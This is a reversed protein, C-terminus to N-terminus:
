NFDPISWFSSNEYNVYAAEHAREKIQKMFPILELEQSNSNICLDSTDRAMKVGVPLIVLENDVEIESFIASGILINQKASKAESREAM